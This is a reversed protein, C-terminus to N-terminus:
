KRLAFIKNAFNSITVHRQSRLMLTLYSINKSPPIRYNLGHKRGLLQKKKSHIYKIFLWSSVNKM